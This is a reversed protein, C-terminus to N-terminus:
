TCKRPLASWSFCWMDAGRYTLKDAPTYPGANGLNRSRMRYGYLAGETPVNEDPGSTLDNVPTWVRPTKVAVLKVTQEGGWQPFTGPVIVVEVLREYPVVAVLLWPGSPRLQREIDWGTIKVGAPPAAWRFSETCGAKVSQRATSCNGGTADIFRPPNPNDGWASGSAAGAAIALAAARISRTPGRRAM